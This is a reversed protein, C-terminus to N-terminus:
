FNIEAAKEPKDVNTRSHGKAVGYAEESAGIIQAKAKCISILQEISAVYRKMGSRGGETPTLVIQYKKFAAGLIKTVETSNEAVYLCSGDPSTGKGAFAGNIAAYLFNQVSLGPFKGTGDDKYIVAHAKGDAKLMAIEQYTKEVSQSLSSDRHGSANQPDSLQLTKKVTAM